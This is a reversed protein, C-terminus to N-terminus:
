FSCTDSIIFSRLPEIMTSTLSSIYSLMFSNMFYNETLILLFMFSYLFSDIVVFASSLWVFRIGFECGSSNVWSMGCGDGM